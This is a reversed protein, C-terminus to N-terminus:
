VKGMCGTWAGIGEDFWGWTRNCDLWNPEINHTSFFMSLVEWDWSFSSEEGYLHTNRPPYPMLTNNEAKFSLDGNNYGLNVKRPEGSCIDKYSKWRVERSILVDHTKSSTIKCKM